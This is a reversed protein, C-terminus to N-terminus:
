AHRGESRVVQPKLCTEKGESRGKGLGSWACYSFTASERPLHNDGGLKLGAQECWSCLNATNTGPAPSELLSPAWPSTFDLHNNMNRELYDYDDRSRM